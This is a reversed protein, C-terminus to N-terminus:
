ILWRVLDYLFLAAGLLTLVAVMIGCGSRGPPDPDRDSWEHLM